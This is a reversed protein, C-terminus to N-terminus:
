RSPVQKLAVRDVLIQRLISDRWSLFDADLQGLLQMTQSVLYKLALVQDHLLIVHQLFCM